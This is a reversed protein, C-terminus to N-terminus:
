RRTPVRDQHFARGSGSQIAHEVPRAAACYGCCMGCIMWSVIEFASGFSATVMMFLTGVMSACLAFGLTSGGDALPVVRFATHAARMLPYAFCFVFLACGVLGYFLSMAAFTNVLDIIGQGQRLEELYNGAFPNGFFPNMQIVEWSLTALQQRYQVNESDVTGIFPLTAIIGQGADTMSFPVALVGIVLGGRLLGKRGAPSTLLFVSSILLAVLWPARSFAAFLGAWLTFGGLWHLKASELRGGLYVWWGFAIALVYGMTLSHGLSAQARLSDGRMLFAFVNPSGWRGPIEEFLLWHRAAEFVVIPVLVFCAICFSLMTDKLAGARASGRSFVYYLLYIDLMFLTARRLTNTVSEYPIYVVLQLAGFALVVM